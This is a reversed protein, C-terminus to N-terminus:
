LPWSHLNSTYREAVSTRKQRQMIDRLNLLHASTERYLTRPSPPEPSPPTPPAPEM